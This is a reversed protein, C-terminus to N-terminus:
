KLYDFYNKLLDIYEDDILADYQLLVTSPFNYKRCLELEEKTTSFLFSDDESRPECKRAFNIINIINKM